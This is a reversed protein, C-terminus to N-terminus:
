TPPPRRRCAGPARARHAQPLQRVRRDQAAASRLLRRAARQLERSMPRAPTPRRRRRRRRGAAARRTPNPTSQRGHHRHPILRHAAHADPERTSWGASRRRCATSPTSPARTACAPRGSSASRAPAAATPTPRSSSASASCTPRAPARLRHRDDPRRRQHLRRAAPGAPDERRDDAAAHAADRAHRRSEDGGVDELLLSTGQIFVTPESDIDAFTTSALRLARAM